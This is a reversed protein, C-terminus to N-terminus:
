LYMYGYKYAECIQVLIGNECICVHQANPFIQVSKSKRGFELQKNGTYESFGFAVM